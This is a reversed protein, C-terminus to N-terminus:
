LVHVPGRIDYKERIHGAFGFSNGVGPTLNMLTKRASKVHVFFVTLDATDKHM